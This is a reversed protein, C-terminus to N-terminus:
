PKWLHPWLKVCEQWTPYRGNKRNFEEMPRDYVSLSSRELPRKGGRRQRVDAVRSAEFGSSVVNRLKAYFVQEAQRQRPHFLWVKSPLDSRLKETLLDRSLLSDRPELRIEIAPTDHRRIKRMKARSVRHTVAVEVILSKTGTDIVIDPVFDGEKREVRVNRISVRGGKAVIAQHQVVVGTRTRRSKIFQYPPIEFSDMTALLEKALSHLVSEAVGHCDISAFHAFHHERKSGKKAIFAAGCVPCACGCRLGRQVDAIFVLKGDRMGYGTQSDTMM